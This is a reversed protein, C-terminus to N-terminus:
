RDLVSGLVRQRNDEAWHGTPRRFQRGLLAFCLFLIYLIAHGVSPAVFPSHQTALQLGTFRVSNPAVEDWSVDQLFVQAIECSALAQIFDLCQSGLLNQPLVSPLLSGMTKEIGGM